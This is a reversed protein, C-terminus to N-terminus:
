DIRILILTVRYKRGQLKNLANLLRRTPKKSWLYIFLYIFICIYIYIYIGSDPTIHSGM